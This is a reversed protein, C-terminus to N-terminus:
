QNTQKNLFLSEHIGLSVEFESHLMPLEGVESGGLEVGFTSPSCAHGVVMPKCMHVPDFGSSQACQALVRM